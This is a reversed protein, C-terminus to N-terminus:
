EKELLHPDLLNFVKALLGSVNVEDNLGVMAQKRNFGRLGKWNNRQFNPFLPRYVARFFKELVVPDVDPLKM